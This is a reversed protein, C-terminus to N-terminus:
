AEEFAVMGIARKYLDLLEEQEELEAQEMKRLRILQRMVKNDFGSSKAEAYVERIDTLVNVKEQDLREIREIFQKLQDGSLGAINTM